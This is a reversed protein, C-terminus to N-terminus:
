CLLIIKVDKIKGEKAAGFVMEYIYQLHYVM